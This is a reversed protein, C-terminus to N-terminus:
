FIKAGQKKLTGRLLNVELKAPLTKKKLCLGAAVGAAQGTQNCNVMVRLAGFAKKDCSIARGAVMLNSIKGPLLSRFPIQYFNATDKRETWRDVVNPKSYFIQERKGDLYYFTLGDGGAHHIDVRYSGYGIADEFKRGNLLEEGSVRYRGIIRRSERIGIYGPLAAISINECGPVARRLIDIIVKVQRRGEIEGFSLSRGNTADTNFIRTGALMIENKRQLSVSGWQFGPPLLKRYKPQYVTKPIIGLSLKKPWNGIRVCMTPPQPYKDKECPCKAFHALDGDGTADIFIKAKILQRGSKNEIVVGKIKENKVVVDAAFTHFLYKVGARVIFDDLVLKMEESEFVSEDLQRTYVAKRKKLENLIEGTIGSIIRTKKDMGYLSHWINVLGSTAVGGFFGQAELLYVKLGMRAAAVAANVGTASGGAVVLDVEDLVKVNTKIIM